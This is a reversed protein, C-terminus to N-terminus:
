WPPINYGCAAPGDHMHAYISVAGNNHEVIAVYGYPNGSTGLLDNSCGRYMYGSDIARIPTGIPGAYDIGPHYGRAYIGSRVGYGQSVWAPPQDVAAHKMYPAPNTDSGNVRVELHLHPGSSLGSNGMTGVVDGAAVAGVPSTRFSGAAIARALAAEAEKRMEELEAVLERFRAEEGRTKQLLSERDARASALNARVVEQQALLNEQEAKQEEMQEQLEIVQNTATQIGGKIRELYEQEDIFDSFSESAILLEVTSAGGRRYLARMNVKLLDKQRELEAEAEIIERELRNIDNTIENIKQTAASIQNDYNGITRELSVAERQRNEVQGQTEEIERELEASQQRLEDISQAGGFGPLSVISLMSGFVFGAAVVFTLQRKFLPTALLLFKTMTNATTKTKSPTSKNYRKSNINAILNKIRKRHRSTGVFIGQSM